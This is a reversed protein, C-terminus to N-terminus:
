ERPEAGAAAHGEHAPSPRHPVPSGAPVHGHRTREIVCTASLMMDLYRSAAEPPLEAAVRYLHDLMALRCDDRARGSEAVLRRIDETVRNTSSAARRLRESAAAVRLCLEDCVPEYSEH